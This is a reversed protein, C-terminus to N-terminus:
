TNIYIHLPYYCEKKVFAKILAASECSSNSHRFLTTIIICCFFKKNLGTMVNGKQIGVRSMQTLLDSVRVMKDIGAM